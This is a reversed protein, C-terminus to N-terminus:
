CTAEKPYKGDFLVEGNYTIVVRSAHRNWDCHTAFRDVAAEKTCEIYGWSKSHSYPYKQDLAWTRDHFALTLDDKDAWYWTATIDPIKEWDPNAEIFDKLRYGGPFDNDNGWWDIQDNEFEENVIWVCKKADWTTIARGEEDYQHYADQRKIQIM